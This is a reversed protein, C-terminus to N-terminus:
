TAYAQLVSIFNVRCRLTCMASLLSFWGTVKCERALHRFFYFFLFDFVDGNEKKFLQVSVGRSADRPSKLKQTEKQAARRPQKHKVGLMSRIVDVWKSDQSAGAREREREGDVGM